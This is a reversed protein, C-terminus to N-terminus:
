YQGGHGSGGGSGGSSGGGQQTQRMQNWHDYIHLEAQKVDGFQAQCYRCVWVCRGNCTQSHQEAEAEVNSVWAGCKLCRWEREQGSLPSPATPPPGGGGGGGGGGATTGPYYGFTGSQGQSSM